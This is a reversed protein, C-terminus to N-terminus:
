QEGRKKPKKQKKKKKSIKKNKNKISFSPKFFNTAWV